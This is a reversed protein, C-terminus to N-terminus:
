IYLLPHNKSKTMLNNKKKLIFKNLRLLEAGGGVSLEVGDIEFAAVAPGSANAAL